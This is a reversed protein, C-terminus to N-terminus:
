MIRHGLGEGRLFLMIRHGLGEGRLIVMIRHVLGREPNVYDKPM